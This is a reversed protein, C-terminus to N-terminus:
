TAATYARKGAQKITASFSVSGKGQAGLDFSELVAPVDWHGGNQAASAGLEARINKIAAAGTADAWAIWQALYQTAIRGGITLDTDQGEVWRTMVAAAGIPDDCDLLMEEGLANTLKMERSNAGCPAGFTEPDGGDGLLILLDYVLEPGAM